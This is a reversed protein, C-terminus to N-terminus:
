SRGTRGGTSATQREVWSGLLAALLEPVLAMREPPEVYAIRLQTRGPNTALPESAYFEAMPAALLTLSRGGVDVKGETACYLVFDRADFGEGAFRRVDVISYLAADPSSIVADPLLERTRETFAALMRGYYERQRRFWKHLGAPSEEALAGFIWQGIANACLNATAEAVARVHFERDDTVLAGIRLGCANWVKSASEISIRRGAIGPAEDDSVRWISTAEGGVYFLERYAEDSVMWLDHRACLKALEVMTGHELFQGTPNDYPIVLIAAPRTEVITREIEGLDPLAFKGDEGLRRAISVTARGTREALAQYNTYAPDILLLPREGSGAPGCLGVIALEMAQSGGDTVHCHLGDTDLGSAAIVRFFAERTEDLGVTPTYRVVGEAFPSGPSALRSMRDIMAPHMPLSVNGIAVQIAETGERREAFRIGAIRIASPERRRFHASLM